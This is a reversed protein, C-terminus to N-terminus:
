YPKYSEVEAYGSIGEDTVVRVVPNNGLVACKVDTIKMPKGWFELCGNEAGGGYPITRGIGDRRQGTGTYQSFARENEGTPTIRRNTSEFYGGLWLPPFATKRMRARAMCGDRSDNSSKPNVVAVVWAAGM